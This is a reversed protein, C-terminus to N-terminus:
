ASGKTIIGTALQAPKIGTARSIALGLLFLGLLLLAVRMLIEVWKDAKFLSAFATFFDGIATLGSLDPTLKDLIGGTTKAIAASAQLAPPAAIGGSLLAIFRNGGASRSTAALASKPDVGNADTGNAYNKGLAFHLHAVGNAEGSLGLLQGAKVSAGPKIAPDLKSLHALYAALGNGNDLGVRIGAFRGGQGLSGATAVKADFPAYVPTGIPTYLDYAYDSQWNQGFHHTGAGPAGNLTYTSGALPNVFAVGDINVTAPDVLTAPRAVSSAGAGGRRLSQYEAQWASVYRDGAGSRTSSGTNYARLAGTFSGASRKLGALYHAAWPIAFGPDLAQAETVDPHSALNIQAVGVDGTSSRASANFSSEHGLLAAFMLPDLGNARAAATIQAGYPGAFASAATASARRAPTRVAVAM